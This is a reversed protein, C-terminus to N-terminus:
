HVRGETVRGYIEKLFVEQGLKERCDKCLFAQIITDIQNKEAFNKTGELDTLCEWGTQKCMECLRDQCLDCHKEPYLGVINLMSKKM